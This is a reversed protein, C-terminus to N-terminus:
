LDTRGRLPPSPRAATLGAGPARGRIALRSIELFAATINIGNKSSTLLHGNLDLQEVAREMEAEEFTMEGEWLDLKSGVLLIPLDEQASRLLRIWRPLSGLGDPDSLDTLLLAGKSGRVFASHMYRFREQGGLDWLQLSCSASHLDVEKTYFDAGVTMSTDEHYKGDVFRRLLTTKGVGGDGGVLIKLVYKKKGEM